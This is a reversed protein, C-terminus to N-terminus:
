GNSKRFDCTKWQKTKTFDFMLMLKGKASVPIGSARYNVESDLGWAGYLQTTFRKCAISNKPNGPNKASVWKVGDSDISTTPIILLCKLRSNVEIRVNECGNLLSLARRNFAISDIKLTCTAEGSGDGGNVPKLMEGNVPQFGDLTIEKVTGYYQEM